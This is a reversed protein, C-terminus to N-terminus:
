CCWFFVTLFFFFFFLHVTTGQLTFEKNSAVHGTGIDSSNRTHRAAWHPLLRLAVRSFQAGSRHYRLPLLWIHLACCVGQLARFMHIISMMGCNHCNMARISCSRCSYDCIEEEFSSQFSQFVSTLDASKMHVSFCNCRVPWVLICFKRWQTFCFGGLNWRHCRCLKFKVTCHATSNHWASDGGKYHHDRCSPKVTVTVDSPQV